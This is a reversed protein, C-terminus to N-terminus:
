RRKISQELKVELASIIATNLPDLATVLPRPPSNGNRPPSYNTTDVGFQWGSRENRVKNAQFRSIKEGQRPFFPQMANDNYM